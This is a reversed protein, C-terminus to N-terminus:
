IAFFGETVGVSVLSSSLYDAKVSKAGKCTWYNAGIFIITRECKDPM